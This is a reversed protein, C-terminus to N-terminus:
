RNTNSTFTDKRRTMVIMFMLTLLIGNGFGLFDLSFIDFCLFWLFSQSGFSNFVGRNDLRGKGAGSGSGGSLGILTSSVSNGRRSPHTENCKQKHLNHVRRDRISFQKRNCTYQQDVLSFTGLRAWYQKNLSKHVDIELHESVFAVM